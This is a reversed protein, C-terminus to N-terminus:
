LIKKENEQESNKGFFDFFLKDIFKVLDEATNKYDGVFKIFAASITNHMNIDAEFSIELFM